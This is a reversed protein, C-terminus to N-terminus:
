DLFSISKTTPHHFQQHSQTTSETKNTSFIFMGRRELQDRYVGHVIGAVFQFVAFAVTAILL